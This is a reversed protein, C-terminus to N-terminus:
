EDSSKEQNTENYEVVGVFEVSEINNSLEGIIKQKNKYEKIISGITKKMLTLLTPLVAKIDPNILEFHTNWSQGDDVSFEWAKFYNLQVLHVLWDSNESEDKLRTELRITYQTNVDKKIPGIITAKYEIIEPKSIGAFDTEIEIVKLSM